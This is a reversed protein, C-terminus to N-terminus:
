RPDIWGRTLLYSGIASGSARLRIQASTNTRVDAHYYAAASGSIAVASFLSGTPLTDAVDLSSVMYQIAGAPILTMAIRAYVKVGTPVTLTPTSATSTLTVNNQDQIPLDWLFEDGYQSFLTWQASGNTKMAGIRRFLTYPSPMTPASPSLSILVDVVNTDTRKILFVHYWTSNAIAGTDLSGNTSGVAWASTTKSFSGTTLKMVGSGAVDAAAGIAISFTASAGATSLTLGTLWGAFTVFDSKIVNTSNTLGDGLTFAGTNGAISTVGAAASNAIVFATTALQTTNTAPAATPATPVGTLTPSALPARSTDSPHIHDGRSFRTSTGVTASGDMLPTASAAQALVMATTAIQTTNTDVAATPATPVGTLAANLASVKSTDSPHVHDQRSVGTLVGPTAVGDMIPNANSLVVGSTPVIDQLRVPDTAATPAPLNLIHNNNMDLSAGMTNPSTGDRSLTNDFATELIANNANIANVATTENQLNVLDTLSIKSM